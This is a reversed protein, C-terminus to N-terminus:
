LDEPNNWWPDPQDLKLLTSHRSESVLGVITAGESTTIRGDPKIMERILTKINRVDADDVRRNFESLRNLAAVKDPISEQDKQRSSNWSVIDKFEASSRIGTSCPAAGSSGGECGEELIHEAHSATPSRLREADM